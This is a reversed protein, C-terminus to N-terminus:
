EYKNKKARSHILSASAGSIVAKLQFVPPRQKDSDLM